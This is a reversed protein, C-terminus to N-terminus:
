GSLLAAVEGTFQAPNQLMAFHSVGPLIALRASPIARALRETHDRRIIEDHEGDAIVVPIKISALQRATFNPQTRWMTRLGAVLQPWREPHPSLAVYETRCRQAYSAFVPSRAGNPKLGDLSSNAGFAFLRTVRGRATMALQLGTVAGDSWGIISVAPIKLVDLLATVDQAFVDYGFRRSVVPSRGHGRTDMVIVTFRRALERVQHGFYNSNGLGGHLMLVPPGAGFQAFFIDAGNIAVRESRTAIPLTPTPPLSLWATSAQAQASRSLAPWITAGASLLGALIQRRAMLVPTAIM